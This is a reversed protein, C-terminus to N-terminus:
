KWLSFLESLGAGGSAFLAGLGTFKLKMKWAEQKQQEMEQRLTAIQDHLDTLNRELHANVSAFGTDVKGALGAFQIEVRQELLALRKDLNQVNIAESM